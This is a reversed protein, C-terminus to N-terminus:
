KFQFDLLFRKCSSALGAILLAILFRLYLPSKLIYSGSSAAELSYIRLGTWYLWQQVFKDDGHLFIMDLLAWFTAVVPWGHAQRCFQRLGPGLFHWRNRRSSLPPLIGLDLLLYQVLRAADLTVMQRGLFNLWWSLTVQGPLFDWEPNGLLYFLIWSIILAPIGIWIIWSHKVARRLVLPLAAIRCPLLWSTPRQNQATSVSEITEGMTGYTGLLPEQPLAADHDRLLITEEQDFLDTEGHSEFVSRDDEDDDNPRHYPKHHYSKAAAWRLNHTPIARHHMERPEQGPTHQSGRSQVKRVAERFRRASSLPQRESFPLQLVDWAYDASSRRRSASVAAFNATAAEEVDLEAALLFDRSPQTGESPPPPDNSHKMTQKYRWM